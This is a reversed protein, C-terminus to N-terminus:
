HRCTATTTVPRTPTIHGSPPACVGHGDFRGRVDAFSFGFRLSVTYIVDDLLDAGQNLKTRRTLSPAVPDDCGATQEFLRPYDLVVVQAQPAAHRNAAYNRALLEPLVFLAFIEGVNVAAFCTADSSAATCTQVVPAFGVDNGGITITVLDTGRPIAPIQRLLVDTTKAGSCALFVLSAPHHEAAWLSPYSQSSRQCFGDLDYPPAGLGSSYSDGLAVYSAPPTLTTGATAPAAAAGVLVGM